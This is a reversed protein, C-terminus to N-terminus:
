SIGGVEALSWSFRKSTYQVLFELIERPLAFVLFSIATFFVDRNGSVMRWILVFPALIHKASTKIGSWLSSTKPRAAGSECVTEDDGSVEGAQALKATEPIMSLLVGGLLEFVLGLALPVYVNWNQMMMSGFAPVVIETILLATSLYFFAQARRGPPIVDSISTHVIAYVVMVGGDVSKLISSIYISSYPISGGASSIVMIWIESLMQDVLGLALVFIRGKKNALDGFPIALILSWLVILSFPIFACVMNEIIKLRAKIATLERQVESSKCPDSLIGPITGNLGHKPYYQHCIITEFLQMKPTMRMVDAMDMLLAFTYCLVPVKWINYTEAAIWNSDKFRFYWADSNVSTPRSNEPPQLLRSREDM